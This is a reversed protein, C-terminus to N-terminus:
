ESSDLGPSPQYSGMPSSKRTSMNSSRPVCVVPPLMTARFVHCTRATIMLAVQVGPLIKQLLRVQGVTDM